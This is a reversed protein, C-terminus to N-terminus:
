EECTIPSKLTDFCMDIFEYSFWENFLDFSINKPFYKKDEYWDTLENIFIDKYSKELIEWQEDQEDYLSAKVMYLNKSALISDEPLKSDDYNNVWDALPEKPRIVVFSRNEIYKM